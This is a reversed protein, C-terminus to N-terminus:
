TLINLELEEIVEIIGVNQFYFFRIRGKDDFLWKQEYGIPIGKNRRLMQVDNLYDDSCYGIHYPGCEKLQEEYKLPEILEIRSGAGCVNKLPVIFCLYQKRIEDYVKEREIRYGLSYFLDLADNINKVRYGIHNIYLM